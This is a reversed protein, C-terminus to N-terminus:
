RRYCIGKRSKQKGKYDRALERTLCIVRFDLTGHQEKEDFLSTSLPLECMVRGRKTERVCTSVSHASSL